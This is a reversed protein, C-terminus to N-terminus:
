DRDWHQVAVYPSCHLDFVYHLQSTTTSIYHKLFIQEHLSAVLDTLIKYKVYLINHLEQEQLFQSLEEGHTVSLNQMEQAQSPSFLLNSDVTKM